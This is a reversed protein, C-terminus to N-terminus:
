NHDEMDMPKGDVLTLEYRGTSLLRLQQPLFCPIAKCSVKYPSPDMRRWTM